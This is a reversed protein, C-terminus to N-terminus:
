IVHLCPAPKSPASSEYPVTEPPAKVPTAVTPMFSQRPWSTAAVPAQAPAPDTPATAAANRQEIQQMLRRQLHAIEEKDKLQDKMDAIRLDKERLILDRERMTAEMQQTLKNQLGLVEQQHQLRVLSLERGARGTALARELEHQLDVWTMKM